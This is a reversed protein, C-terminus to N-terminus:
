TSTGAGQDHCKLEFCLQRLPRDGRGDIPPTCLYAVDQGSVFSAEVESVSRVMRWQDTVVALPSISQAVFLSPRTQSVQDYVVRWQDPEAAAVAQSSASQAVSLSSCTQLGHDSLRFSVAGSKPRKTPDVHKCGEVISTLLKIDWDALRRGNFSLLVELIAGYAYMDGEPVPMM